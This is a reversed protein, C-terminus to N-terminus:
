AEDVAAFGDSSPSEVDVKEGEAALRTGYML